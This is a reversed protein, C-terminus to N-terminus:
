PLKARTQWSYSDLSLFKMGLGRCGQAGSALDDMIHREMAYDSGPVVPRARNRDEFVDLRRQLKKEANSMEKALVTEQHEDLRRLVHGASVQKKEIMHMVERRGMQGSIRLLGSEHFDLLDDSVVQHRVETQM